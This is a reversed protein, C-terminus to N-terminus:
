PGPVLVGGPRGPIVEVGRIGSFSSWLRWVTVGGVACVVLTVTCMRGAVGEVFFPVCLRSRLLFAVPPRLGARGPVDPVSATLVVLRLVNCVSVVLVTPGPGWAERGDRGVLM